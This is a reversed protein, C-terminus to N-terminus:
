MPRTSYVISTRPRSSLTLAAASLASMLPLLATRRLSAGSFHTAMAAWSPIRHDGVTQEFVLQKCKEGLLLSMFRKELFFNMAAGALGLKGLFCTLM